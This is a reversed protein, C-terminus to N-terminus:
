RKLTLISRAQHVAPFMKDGVENSFNLFGERKSLAPTPQMLMGHSWSGSSAEKVYKMVKALHRAIDLYFEESALGTKETLSYKPNVIASEAWDSVAKNAIRALKAALESQVPTIVPHIKGDQEKYRSVTQHEDFLSEVGDAIAELIELCDPPIPIDLKPFYEEVMINLFGPVSRLRNGKHERGWTHSYFSIPLISVNFAKALGIAMEKTIAKTKWAQGVNGAKVIFSDEGRTLAEIMYGYPLSDMFIAVKGGRAGEAVAEAFYRTVMAFHRAPDKEVVTGNTGAVEDKIGLSVRSAHFEWVQPKMGRARKLVQYAAAPPYGDRPLGDVQSGPISTKVDMVFSAWGAILPAYGSVLQYYEAEVAKEVIKRDYINGNPGQLTIEGRNVEVHSLAERVLNETFWPALQHGLEDIREGALENAITQPVPKLTDASM